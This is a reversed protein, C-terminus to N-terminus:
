SVSADVGAGQRPAPSREIKHILRIKVPTFNRCLKSDAAFTKERTNKQLCLLSDGRCGPARPALRAVRDINFELRLIDRAETGREREAHLLALGHEAGDLDPLAAEAPLPPASLEEAARRPAPKELPHLPRLDGGVRRPQPGRWV